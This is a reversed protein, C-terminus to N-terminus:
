KSSIVYDFNSITIDTNEATDGNNNTRQIEEIAQRAGENGYLTNIAREVANKSAIMPVIRLKTAKRVEDIAYFNLPDDMAVYLAEGQKQVPVLHNQRATNRGVLSAMEKPITVQALDIYDVELQLALTRALDEETVIGNEVLVEGLKKHTEKQRDLAYQLENETILQQEILLDGIRKKPM